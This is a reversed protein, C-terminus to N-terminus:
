RTGDPAMPGGSKNRYEMQISPGADLAQERMKFYEPGPADLLPGPEEDQIQPKQVEELHEPLTRVGRAVDGRDGRFIYFGAAVLLVVFVFVFASLKWSGRDPDM